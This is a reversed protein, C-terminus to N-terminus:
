RGEAHVLRLESVRPRSPMAWWIGLAAIGLMALMPVVIVSASGLTLTMNPVPNDVVMIEVIGMTAEQGNRLCPLAYALNYAFVPRRTFRQAHMRLAHGRSCEADGSCHGSQRMRANVTCIPQPM